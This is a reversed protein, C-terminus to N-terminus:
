RGDIYDKMIFMRGLATDGAWRPMPANKKDILLYMLTMVVSLAIYFFVGLSIIGIILFILTGSGGMVEVVALSIITITLLLGISVLVSFRSTISDAKEARRHGSANPPVDTM